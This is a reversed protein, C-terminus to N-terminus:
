SGEIDRMLHQSASRRSKPGQRYLCLTGNCGPRGRHDGQRWRLESREPALCGLRCLSGRIQRLDVAPMNLPKMLSKVMGLNAILGHLDRRPSISRTDIFGASLPNSISITHSIALITSSTRPGTCFLGVEILTSRNPLIPQPPVCGANNAGRDHSGRPWNAGKVYQWWQARKGDRSAKTPQVFLVSGAELVDGSMEPHTKPDIGREALTKYGTVEVFKAFEANTV